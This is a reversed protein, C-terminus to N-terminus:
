PKNGEKRALASIKQVFETKGQTYDERNNRFQIALKQKLVAYERAVEPHNKLYHCFYPEDWDGFYRPHVHFTQGQLGTPTYGKAFMLHPAPKTPRPIVDYGLRTFQQNLLPIDTAKPLEVLIDITPKAVLNPVATSGIHHIRVEDIRLIDIIREREKKFMVGWYQNPESLVVPFLQGLEEITLENLSKPM